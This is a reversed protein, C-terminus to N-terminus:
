GNDGNADSCRVMGDYYQIKACAPALEARASGFIVRTLHLKPASHSAKQVKKANVRSLRVLLTSDLCTKDAHAQRSRFGYAASPKQGKGKGCIPWRLGSCNIRQIMASIVWNYM